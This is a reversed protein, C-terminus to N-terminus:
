FIMSDQIKFLLLVDELLCRIPEFMIQTSFTMESGNKKAFFKVHKIAKTLTRAYKLNRCIELKHEITLIVRNRKKGKTGSM